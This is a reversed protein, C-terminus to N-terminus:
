NMTKFRPDPNEIRFRIFDYLTKFDNSEKISGDNKLTELIKLPNKEKYNFGTKIDNGKQVFGTTKDINLNSAKQQNRVINNSFVTQNPYTNGWDKFELLTNEIESVPKKPIIIINNKISTNEVPGTIHFTPSFFRKNHAKYPRLGDNVSLNYQIKTDKTGINMPEGLKFGNNCILMFGGWNDFSYNYRFTSGICNFDADYSQGDWKARHDSVENFQVLTNDSSWPWIGAAADGVPMIDLGKRIVNYEILAGDCGIPVIGDGPVNEILNGRIVVGLSPHWESRNAYGRSNMANRDCHHIYNNLIQLDIFRTKIKKGKNEWLIASGGGEKKELVGNVNHIELGELVIHHSDGFDEARVIIGRRRAKREKGQNTIELNRVEWYEVNYLLLTYENYGNGHIAPNAGKGYRDIQIIKGAKGSGKPVLKGEYSTGAAFLIKDGPKFNQKNVKWLTKWPSSKSTGSYSDNGTKSNVYYTNAFLYPCFLLTLIAITKRM